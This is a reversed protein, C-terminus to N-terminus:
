PPPFSNIINTFLKNLYYFIYSLFLGIEDYFEDFSEIPYLTDNAEELLKQTNESIENGRNKLSDRLSVIWDEDSKHAIVPDDSVPLSSNSKLLSHLKDIFGFFLLSPRLLKFLNEPIDVAHQANADSAPQADDQKKVTILSTPVHEFIAQFLMREFLYFKWKSWEEKSLLFLSSILHYHVNEEKLLNQFWVLREGQSLFQSITQNNLKRQNKDDLMYLGMLFFTPILQINSERGGGRSDDNFPLEFSFRNLLSRLNFSILKFKSSSDVRGCTSYLTSWYRDVMTAYNEDKISPGHLPIINNCLASNRLSAGDWEEKPPNLEADADAAKRHCTFHIMNFSTVTSYGYEKQKQQNQQILQQQLTLPSAPSPPAQQVSKTILIKKEYVYIGLMEEPLFQFGERCIKCSFGEEELDDVEDFISLVPAQAQPQAEGSGPSVPSEKPSGNNGAASPSSSPDSLQKGPVVIGVKGENISKDKQVLGMKALVEQRHKIAEQQKAKKIATEVENFASKVKENNYKLSEILNEAFNGLENNTAIGTLQFLRDILKYEISKNQAIELGKVLGTLIPLVYILSKKDVCDQWSQSSSVENVPLLDSLYEYLYNIIGKEYFYERLKYGIIDMRIANTVNIFCEIHFLYNSDFAKSEDEKYDKFTLYGEFYKLLIESVSEEGGTLIPLIRSVSKVISSNGKVLPSTLKDLFIRMQEKIMEIQMKEEEPDQNPQGSPHDSSGQSLATLSSESPVPTFPFISLQSSSSTLLSSTSGTSSTLPNTSGENMDTLSNTRRPSLSIQDHSSSSLQKVLKIAGKSVAQEGGSEGEKEPAEEKKEEPKEAEKDPLPDPHVHAAPLEDSPGDENLKNEISNAESVLSEIISLLLEAIEIRSQKQFELKLKELLIPLSNLQLLKRRNVKLKCCHFLLTLIQQILERDRDIDNILEIQKLITELGDCEAMISTIKYQIEPDIEENTDDELESVMVETAEGTLGQVRYIVEMPPYNTYDIPKAPAQAAQPVMAQEQNPQSQQEEEIKSPVWVQEFVQKISLDLKIIKKNVLLELGNNDLFAILGLTECIKSKIDNMTAGMEKSSYPNKPMDKLFDEQESYKLLVLLYEPEPKKPCVINCLQEFIFVRTRASQHKDLAKICALMFLQNDKENDGHMSKLLEILQKSCDDILKSKQVLISRTSLYGDLLEVTLQEEKFKKKIGNEQLFLSLLQIYRKLIEGESISIHNISRKEKGSSKEKKEEKEKEKEEGKIEEEEEEEEEEEQQQYKLENEQIREIENLILNTIKNLFGNLTLYVKYEIPEVLLNILNFYEKSSDDPICTTYQLKSILLDLYGMVRKSTTATAKILKVIEERILVSTECFLLEILWNDILKMKKEKGEIIDAKRKWINIVKRMGQYNMKEKEEKKILVDSYYEKWDNYNIRKESGEGEGEGVKEEKGKDGEKMWHYYSTTPYAQVNIEIEKEEEVEKKEIGEEKLKENSGGTTILPSLPSISPSSSSSLSRDPHIIFQNIFLLCPYSIHTIIMPNSKYKISSFFIKFILKVRLEWYKDNIEGSHLLLQMENKIFSGVDMSHYNDYLYEVKSWIIEHINVTAHYNNKILACLVNRVNSRITANTNVPNMTKLIKHIYESEVMMKRIEINNTLEEILKLTNNIFSCKCGYCGSREKEQQQQPQHHSEHISGSAQSTAYSSPYNSRGKMSSSSNSNSSASNDKQIQQQKKSNYKILEKRTALLIQTSKSLTIFAPKCDKVYFSTLKAIDTNLKEEAYSSYGSSASLQSSSSGGEQSTQIITPQSKINYILKSLSKKIEMLSQHKQFASESQKEIIEMAQDRDKENEIAEIQFSQKAAVQISISADKCLGCDNCFFSTLNEYNISRCSRCQHANEKCFSCIGHKSTVPKRCGPCQLVEKLPNEYFSSYEIMFNCATIPIIFEISINRQGAQLQITKGKNWYPWNNKLESLNEFYKNNYYINITKVLRSKTKETIQFQVQQISYSTQFKLIQTNGTFISESSIDNIPYQQHQIEPNNCIFCSENELYYGEYDVLESLTNYIYANKDEVMDKYEKEYIKMLVQFYGKLENISIGNYPEAEAAGHSNGSQITSYKVIDNIIYEILEFYEGANKGYKPIIKVINKLVQFLYVKQQNNTHYWMWNIINKCENRISKNNYELLYKWVFKTFRKGELLIGVISNPIQEKKEEEKEEKIVKEKEEKKDSGEVEEKEEIKEKNEEQKSSGDMESPIEKKIEEKKKSNDIKEQQKQQQLKIQHIITNPLFVFSLLKLISVKPEENLYFSSNLLLLINEPNRIIFNQWNLPRESASELTSNLYQFLQITEAYTIEM